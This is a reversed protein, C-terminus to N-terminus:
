MMLVDSWVDWNYDWGLFLVKRQTICTWYILTLPICELSSTLDHTCWCFYFTISGCCECWVEVFHLIASCHPSINWFFYIFLVMINILSCKLSITAWNHGQLVGRDLHMTSHRYCQCAINICKMVCLTPRYSSQFCPKQKKWDRTWKQWRQHNSTWLSFWM